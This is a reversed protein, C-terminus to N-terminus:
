RVGPRRNVSTQQYFFTVSGASKLSKGSGDQVEATLNHAGRDVESLSVSTAGPPLDALLQGDMYLRIKHGSRLRPSVSLKVTVQGGTNWITEEQSPGIIEFTKYGAFDDGDAADDSAADAASRAVSPASFAQVPQVDVETAGDQPVDSYHMQGNEDAWKYIGEALAPLAIATVLLGLLSFRRNM